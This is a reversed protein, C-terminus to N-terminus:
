CHKGSGAVRVKEGLVMGIEEKGLVQIQPTNTNTIFWSLGFQHHGGSYSLYCM